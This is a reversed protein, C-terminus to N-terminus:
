SRKRIDKAVSRFTENAHSSPYVGHHHDQTSRMYMFLAVAAPIVIVIVITCLILFNWQIGCDATNYPDKVLPQIQPRTLAAAAAELSEKQSNTSLMIKVLDEDMRKFFAATEQPSPCRSGPGIGVNITRVNNGYEECTTSSQNETIASPLIETLLSYKKVPIKLSKRAYFDQSNIFNNARKIDSVACQYKISISQLTDGEQITLHLFECNTFPDVSSGSFTGNSNSSDNKTIKRLSSTFSNEHSNQKKLDRIDHLTIEDDSCNEADASILPIAEFKTGRLKRKNSVFRRDSMLSRHKNPRFDFNEVMISNM